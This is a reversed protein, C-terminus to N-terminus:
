NNKDRQWAVRGVKAQHTQMRNQFKEVMESPMEEAAIPSKEFPDKAVNVFFFPQTPNNQLMKWDGYRVAYYSLGMSSGGERRVFYLVRKPDKQEEGRLMKAYSVGDITEPTLSELGVLELLTPYIDMMVMKNQSLQREVREPSWVIFPVRIGGEWMDGKGGRLEGNTAGHRLVGGNDSLFIIITNDLRGTRSLADVVEGIGCDMHEVLAGYKARELSIGDERELIRELSEETPDIPDHPATYSLFMFLPSEDGAMNDIHEVAWRTFLDTAHEGSTEVVCDNNRMYNKKSRTHTTYSDIMGELWGNFVEFGRDNPHNPSTIGLHWKGILASKYGGEQLQEALTPAYTTLNGYNWREGDRIVGPVGVLDPFCGTLLAARSPSSVNSNSYFNILQCGQEALKDIHPTKIDTAGYCGIDSWGLDDAMILLINPREAAVVEQHAVAGMTSLISTSFLFHFTKNM